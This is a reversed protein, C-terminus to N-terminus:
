KISEYNKIIDLIVQEWTILNRTDINASDVHILEMKISPNYETKYPLNKLLELHPGISSIYSEKALFIGEAAANFSNEIITTSIYYRAESIIKRAEARDINGTVEVLNDNLIVKPIPSVEGIIKLRLEPFTEYLEKFKYYSKELFKHKHTGLIVAFDNFKKNKDRKLFLDIEENSGNKSVFKLRNFKKEFLSISYESEASLVDTKSFTNLFYYKLLLFKLKSLISYGYMGNVFPLVNSIHLLNIAARKRTIPIGYSYYLDFEKNKFDKLYLYKEINLIRSLKSVEIVYYKNNPYKNILFSSRKNILFCAGGNNSFWSSFEELRKLGGGSYSSSFNFLISYM